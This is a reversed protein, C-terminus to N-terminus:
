YQSHERTNQKTETFEWSGLNTSEILKKKRKEKQHGHDRDSRYDKRGNKQMMERTWRINSQMDANKEMLQM